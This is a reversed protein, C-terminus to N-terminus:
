CSSQLAAITAFLIQHHQHHPFISLIFKSILPFYAAAFNQCNGAMAPTLPVGGQLLQYHLQAAIFLRCLLFQHHRHIDAAAPTLAPLRHGASLTTRSHHRHGIVLLLSNSNSSSTTLHRLWHPSLLHWVQHDLQQHFLQHM